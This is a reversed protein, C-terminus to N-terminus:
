KIVEDTSRETGTSLLQDLKLPDSFSEAGYEVDANQSATPYNSPDLLSLLGWQTGADPRCSNSRELLKIAVEMCELCRQWEGSEVNRTINHSDEMPNLIVIPAFETKATLQGTSLDLAQNEYNVQSTFFRFFEILLERPEPSCKVSRQWKNLASSQSLVMDISPLLPPNRCQMFFAVLCILQFNSLWTGPHQRILGIERAWRRIVFLLRKISPQLITFMWFVKATQYSSRNDLTLDCSIGLSRSSLKVIPVRANLIKVVHEACPFFSELVAGIACLTQQIYSRENTPRYKLGDPNLQVNIDLDCGKQAFGNVTSGFPRCISQPFLRRVADEILSTLFFRLRLGEKSIRTKQYLQEIQDNVSQVERLTGELSISDVIEFPFTLKPISHLDRCGAAPVHKIMRSEWPFVRNQFHHNVEELLRKVQVCDKCELLHIEQLIGIM